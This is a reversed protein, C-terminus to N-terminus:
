DEFEAAATVQRALGQAEAALDAAAVTARSQLEGCLAKGGGDTLYARMQGALAWEDLLGLMPAMQSAAKDSATTAAIKWKLANARVGFEASQSAIADAAQEVGINFRMAFEHSLIRANLDRPSLPKEPSKITLLPCGGFLAEISGATTCLLSTAGPNGRGRWFTRGASGCVRGM